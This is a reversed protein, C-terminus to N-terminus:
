GKVAGRALGSVLYRQMIIFVLMLPLSGIVAAAAFESWNETLRNFIFGRLGLPLTYKDQTATMVISSLAYESYTGIFVLLFVVAVMPRVIPLVVYRLVQASHSEPVPIEAVVVPGAAAPGAVTTTQGILQTQFQPACGSLALVGAALTIMFKKSM